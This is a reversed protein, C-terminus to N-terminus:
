NNQSNLTRLANLVGEAKPRIALLRPHWAIGIERRYSNLWPFSLRAANKVIAIEPLVALAQETEVLRAAQTFSTCNFRLVPRLKHKACAGQFRELFEGGFSIALPREALLGEATTAKKVWSNPAFLAYGISGIYHFRIGPVVASRRVIAFDLTHDMLARVAHDTRLDLLVLTANPQAAAVVALHPILLWEITSNGSAIRYEVPQSRCGRRFDELALFQSRAQRALERGSDTLEIGKGKRRTLETGFFEELERVQRSYLSQKGPDGNAARSIGGAEAIACFNRLRDMSLGGKALLNNFM